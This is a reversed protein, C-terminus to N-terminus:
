RGQEKLVAMIKEPTIPLSRVRAGVAHFIANGIAPAVVSMAPEGAGTPHEGTGVIEIDLEPVQGFRLIPYADFNTAKFRGNAFAAREYLAVSLGTLAASEIQARVGDPHIAAGVDSVITLKDVAVTGTKRDVRVEAVCATWSPQNRDPASSAALGVGRGESKDGQKSEYGAIEITRRIVAALRAAGGIASPESGGNPGSGDLLDLRLAVADRGIHHALEDIFSELAWFAWGTANARMFGAAMARQGVDNEIARVRYNPFSYWSDAGTLAAWDLKTKGDPGTQMAIPLARVLPWASCLDHCLAIPQSKTDLGATLKQVALPRHFDFRLEEERDFIVKVPRGLAKAALGAAVLADVEVRRGSPDGLYTQHLAVQDGDVDVANALAAAAKTQFASGAYAHWTDGDRFVLASMPEIGAHAVHATVYEASFISAAQAMANDVDGVIWWPAGQDRDAILIRARSIIDDDGLAAYPGLEWDIKLAKAAASAAPYTEALAIVYVGNDGAPDDASVFQRYGPIKKAEADDVSRPKSGSRLPPRAIKGYLMNPVFADIGYRATGDTKAPIDLAPPSTGILRYSNSPKLVLKALDDDEFVRSVAGSAVLEAYSIRAGSKDATVWGSKAVCAEMPVSLKKAGAEILATRGAAGYRLMDDGNLAVSWSGATVMIGFARQPDPYDIRVDRWDVELEEAIMMAFATGIHQGVEAKAIHVTVIGTQDIVYWATPAYHSAARALGGTGPVRTYGIFLCAGAAGSGILFRRRNM